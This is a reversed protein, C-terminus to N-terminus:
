IKSKVSRIQEELADTSQYIPRVNKPLTGFVEMIFAVRSGNRREKPVSDYVESLNLIFNNLPANRFGGRQNKLSSTIAQTIKKQRILEIILNDYSVTQSATRPHKQIHARATRSLADQDQWLSILATMASQAECLRKKVESIDPAVGEQEIRALYSRTHQVIKKRSQDNFVKGAVGEIKSFQKLSIDHRPLVGSAPSAMDKKKAM